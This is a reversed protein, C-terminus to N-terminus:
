IINKNIDWVKQPKFGDVRLVKGKCILEFKLRFNDLALYMYANDGSVSPQPQCCKLILVKIIRSIGFFRM